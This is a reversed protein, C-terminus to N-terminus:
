PRIGPDREELLPGGVIEISDEVRAHLTFGEFTMLMRGVEDWSYAKGDVLLCHRAGHVSRDRPYEGLPVPVDEDLDVVLAVDPVVVGDQLRRAHV